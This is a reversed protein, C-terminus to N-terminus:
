GLDRWVGLLQPVLRYGRRIKISHLWREPKVAGQVRVYMPKANRPTRRKAGKGTVGPWQVGQARCIRRLYKRM